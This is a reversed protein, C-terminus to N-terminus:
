SSLKERLITTIIKYGAMVSGRLTGSVKSTGVRKRYSVPVEKCRLGRKAAKVQMEVTWGFNRDKMKLDLLRDFRIARFPGLDTFWYGYLWELLHVALRNGFAQHPLLAGEERNGLVRSGIVMDMGEEVIPRILAPMEEPYDSYDGDLFVVIDPKMAQREFWAIGALCANGYGKLPADIVVAGAKRAATETGDTSGNNCVLVTQVLNGPIAGIVLGISLEENFAPIIVGVTSTM